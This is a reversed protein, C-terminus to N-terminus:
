GKVPKFKYGYYIVGGKGDEDIKRFVAEVRTGIEVAGDVIQATLKPGEVLEIIAMTYPLQLKFPGDHVKTFSIVEGKGSFKYDRMKGISHRHCTPCVIRPPFYRQECVPCLSGLLNYRKATERWFRPVSM